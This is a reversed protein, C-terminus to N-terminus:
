SSRRQCENCVISIVADTIHRLNQSRSVCRYNGSTSILKAKRCTCLLGFLNSFIVRFHCPRDKQWLPIDENAGHTM